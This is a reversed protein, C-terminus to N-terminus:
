NFSDTLSCELLQRFPEDRPDPKGLNVFWNFPVMRHGTKPHVIVKQGEERAEFLMKETLKQDEISVYLTGTAIERGCTFVCGTEPNFLVAFIFNSM